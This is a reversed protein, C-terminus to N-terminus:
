QSNLTPFCMKIKIKNENRRCLIKTKMPTYTDAKHILNSVKFDKQFQM